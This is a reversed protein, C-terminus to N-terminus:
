ADGGSRQEWILRGDPAYFEACDCESLRGRYTERLCRIASLDDRASIEALAVGVVGDRRRLGLLKLVYTALSRHSRPPQSTTMPSRM